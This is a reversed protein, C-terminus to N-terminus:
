DSKDGEHGFCIKGYNMGSLKAWWPSRSLTLNGVVSTCSFVPYILMCLVTGRCLKWRWMLIYYFPFYMTTSARRCCWNCIRSSLEFHNTRETWKCCAQCVECVFYLMNERSILQPDRKQSHIALLKLVMKAALKLNNPRLLHLLIPFKQMIRALGFVNLGRQLNVICPNGTQSSVLNDIM